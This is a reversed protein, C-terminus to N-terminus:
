RMLSSVYSRHAVSGYGYSRKLRAMDSLYRQQSEQLSRGENSYKKLTDEVIGGGKQQKIKSLLYETPATIPSFILKSLDQQFSRPPDFLGKGTIGKTAYGAYTELDELFGSGTQSALVKRRLKQVKKLRKRFLSAAEDTISPNALANGTGQEIRNLESLFFPIREKDYIGNIEDELTGIRVDEEIDSEPEETIDDAGGCMCRGYGQQELEKLKAELKATLEPSNQIDTPRTNFKRIVKRILDNGELFVKVKILEAQKLNFEDEKGEKRLRDIVENFKNDAARIAEPTSSLNYRIDHAMSETDIPTLGKDGRPVRIDVRTGPGMYEASAYRGDPLKLIGHYEGPYLTNISKDVNLVKDAVGKVVDYVGSGQIQNQLFKRYHINQM